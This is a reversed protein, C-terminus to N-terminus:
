VASQNITKGPYGPINKTLSTKRLFKSSIIEQYKRLQVTPQEGTIQPLIM